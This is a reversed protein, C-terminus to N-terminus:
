SGAREPVGSRAGATRCTCGAALEAVTTAPARCFIGGALVSPVKCANSSSCSEMKGPARDRPGDARREFLVSFGWVSAGGGGGGKRRCGALLQARM